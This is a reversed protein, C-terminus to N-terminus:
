RFKSAFRRSMTWAPTLEPSFTMKFVTATIGYCRLFQIPITYKPPASSLVEAGKKTM